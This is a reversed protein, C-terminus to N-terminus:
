ANAATLSYFLVFSSRAQRFGFINTMSTGQLHDKARAVLGATSTGQWGIYYQENDLWLVYLRLYIVNM